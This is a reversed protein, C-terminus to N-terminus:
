HPAPQAGAISARTAKTDFTQTLAFGGWIRFAIALFLSPMFVVSALGSLPTDPAFVAIVTAAGALVAFWGFAVPAGPLARHIAAWGAVVMSLGLFLSGAGGAAGVIAAFGTWSGQAAAPDASLFAPTGYWYALPVLVHAGAGIMGFWLTAAALTPMRSHLRHALGAVFLVLFVLNAFGALVAWRLIDGSGQLFRVASSPDSFTAPTWGSTIWLTAEIMLGIGAVIGAVGAAKTNMAYM